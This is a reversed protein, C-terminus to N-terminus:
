LLRGRGQGGGLEEWRLVATNRLRRKLPLASPPPLTSLSKAPGKGEKGADDGGGLRGKREWTIGPIAASHASDLLSMIRGHVRKNESEWDPLFCPHRFRGPIGTAILTPAWSVMGLLKGLCSIRAKTRRILLWAWGTGELPWSGTVILAWAWQTSLVIERTQLVPISM